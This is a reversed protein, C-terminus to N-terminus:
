LMQRFRKATLVLAPHLTTMLTTVMRITPQHQQTDAIIVAIAEGTIDQNVGLM